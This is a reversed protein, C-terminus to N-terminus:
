AAITPDYSYFALYTAASPAFQSPSAISDNMNFWGLGGDSNRRLCTATYHGANLQGFHDIYAVARYKLPRFTLAEPFATYEMQKAGGHENWVYNKVMVVIIEPLMTLRSRKPKNSSDKCNECKYDQIAEISEYLDKALNQTPNIEFLISTTRTHSIYKCRLCALEHIYRHEFLRTIEPVREFLEMIYSFTEGACQQNSVLEQLQSVPKGILHLSKIYIKYLEMNSIKGSIFAHLATIISTNENNNLEGITQIFQPCSLLAQLTANWYCHIGSTNPLGIPFPLKASTFILLDTM